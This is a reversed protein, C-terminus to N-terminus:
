HVGKLSDRYAWYNAGAVFVVFAAMAGLVVVAELLSATECM